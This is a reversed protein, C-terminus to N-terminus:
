ELCTDCLVSYFTPSGFNGHGDGLLISITGDTRNTNVLDLHGDKNFDEAVVTHPEKGVTLIPGAVLSGTGDGFFILITTSHEQMQLGTVPYAVDLKGDENFDGIAVLGKLNGQDLNIIQKTTFNGAGDGLYTALFNGTHNGPLAGAVVMDPKGDHNLDPSQINTPLPNVTFTSTKTFGGAGDGLFVVVSSGNEGNSAINFTAIDMNGDGNFDAVSLDFDHSLGEIEIAPVLFNGKNDGLYILIIGEDPGTVVVDLNGDNNMDKLVLRTPEGDGKLQGQFTFGGLGDGQYIDLDYGWATCTVLDLHGDRNFDAAILGKNLTDSMIHRKLSFGGLGDGQFIAVNDFGTVNVALDLFGDGNWDGAVILEPLALSGTRHNAYASPLLIAALAFSILTLFRVTKINKNMNKM